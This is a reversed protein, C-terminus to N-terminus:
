RYKKELRDIESIYRDILTVYIIDSVTTPVNCLHLAVQNISSIKMKSLYVSLSVSMFVSWCFSLDTYSGGKPYFFTRNFSTDMIGDFFLERPIRIQCFETNLPIRFPCLM